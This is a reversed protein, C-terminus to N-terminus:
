DSYIPEYAESSFSAPDAMRPTSAAIQPAAREVAPKPEVRRMVSPDPHFATTMAVPTENRAPPAPLEVVARPTSAHTVHVSADNLNLTVTTVLFVVVSTAALVIKSRIPYVVQDAVPTNAARHRRAPQRSAGSQSPLLPPAAARGVSIRPQTPPVPPQARVPEPQARQPQARPPETRQPVAVSEPRAAQVPRAAPPLNPRRVRRKLLIAQPVNITFTADAATLSIREVIPCMETAAALAPRSPPSSASPLDVQPAVDPAGPATAGIALGTQALTLTSLLEQPNIPYGLTRFLGFPGLKGKLLQLRSRRAAFVRLTDPSSRAIQGLLRLGLGDSLKESILVLDFEGQALLDNCQECSTATQIAFQRAFTRAISELLRANRDAILVRM